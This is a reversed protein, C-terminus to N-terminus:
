QFLIKWCPRLWFCGTLIGNRFDILRGLNAVEMLMLKQLIKMEENYTVKIALSVLRDPSMLSHYHIM